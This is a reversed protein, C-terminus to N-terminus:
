YGAITCIRFAKPPHIYRNTLMTMPDTAWWAFDLWEFRPRYLLLFVGRAFLGSGSRGGNRSDDRSASPGTHPRSLIDVNTTHSEDPGIYRVHVLCRRNRRSACMVLVHRRGSRRDATTQRVGPLSVIETIIEKTRRAGASSRKTSVVRLIWEHRVQLRAKGRAAVRHGQHAWEPARVNWGLGIADLAFWDFHRTM